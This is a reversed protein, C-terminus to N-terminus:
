QMFVLKGGIFTLDPRIDMIKEAPCTFIDQNLVVLDALYGEKIRGKENETFQNYSSGITYDDIAQAVSLKEKPFYGEKPQLNLDQRNIACHLNYFPNFPEVPCDTGFSTKIGLQDATKYAYSTSELAYDVRNKVMHLDYELFIPQYAILLNNDAIKHLIDMSTIQCHNVCHRNPNGEKMNAIYSDCTLDIAEDGIAHTFVQIGHEEALKVYKSMEELTICEIGKSERNDIYGDKLLATKAGLSGDKFLKLPGLTLKKSNTDIKYDGNLVTKEFEQYNDFQAQLHWRILNEDNQYIEQLAEITDKDNYFDDIDQSQISTLGLAAAESIAELIVRKLDEKEYSVLRKTKDCDAEYLFGDESEFGLAKLAVDNCMCSHGCIRTLAVPIENSIANLDDKTFMIGDTFLDENYGRGYIVTCNPHEEKFQVCREIVENKSKCGELNVRLRNKAYYSLHLHSDNFGPVVTKGELGIEKDFQCQKIQENTGIKVIKEGDILIAQEFHGDEIYFKGNTLATIM